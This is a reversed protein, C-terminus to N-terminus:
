NGYDVKLHRKKPHTFFPIRKLWLRLAQWYIGLVVKGCMFPYRLAVTNAAFQTLPKRELNLTADFVIEHNRKCIMHVLLSEDKLKFVWRYKLDMPMFPSVHFEKLFEFSLAGSKVKANSVKLVYSHRENWPTNNIEAVIYALGDNSDRCFYFTVPNFCYGWYRLNTLVHVTGMFDDGTQEKIRRSVAAKLDPIGPDLYDSRKFQVLNPKNLSWLPHRNTLRTIDDLNLYLMFLRYHFEHGRPQRRRHRVWGECLNNSPRPM